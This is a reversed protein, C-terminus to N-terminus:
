FRIPNLIWDAKLRKEKKEIFRYWRVAIIALFRLETGNRATQKYINNVFERYAKATYSM